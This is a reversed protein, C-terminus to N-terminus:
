ETVKVKVKSVIGSSNFVKIETTGKKLGKVKGKSSVSAVSKRSSSWTLKKDHCNTFITGLQVSKGKKLSICVEIDAKSTPEFHGFYTVMGAEDKSETWIRLYYTGPDLQTYFLTTIGGYQPHDWSNYEKGNADSLTGEIYYYSKPSTDIWFTGKEKIVVKLVVPDNYKIEFQDFEGFTITHSVQSALTEAKATVPRFMVCAAFLLAVSLFRLGWTGYKKM